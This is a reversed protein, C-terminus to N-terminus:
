KGVVTGEQAAERLVEQRVIKVRLVENGVRVACRRVHDEPKRWRPQGEKKVMVNMGLTTQLDHEFAVIQHRESRNGLRRWRRENLWLLGKGQAQALSTFTGIIGYRKDLFPVGNPWDRAEYILVWVHKASLPDAVHNPINQTLQSSMKAMATVFKKGPILLAATFDWLICSYTFAM